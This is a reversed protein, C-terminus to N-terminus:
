RQDSAYEAKLQEIENIIEAYGQESTAEPFSGRLRGNWDILRVRSDHVFRVQGSDDEVASFLMQQTVFEYISAKNGTVLHWQGKRCGLSDAYHLLRAVSDTEPDVTYSVFRILPDGKFHKQVLQMSAMIRPCTAQCTSFFVNAVWIKGKLSDQSVPYGYQGTFTWNGPGRYLSDQGGAPNAMKIFRLKKIESHPRGCHGLLTLSPVFLILLLIALGAARSM